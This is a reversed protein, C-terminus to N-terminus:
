SALVMIVNIYNYVFFLRDGGGGFDSNKCGFNYLDTM